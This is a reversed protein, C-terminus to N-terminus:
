ATVQAFDPFHFAAAALIHNGVRGCLATALDRQSVAYASDALGSWILTAFAIAAQELELRRMLMFGRAAHADAETSDLALARRIV